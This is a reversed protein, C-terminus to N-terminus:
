SQEQSVVLREGVEVGEISARYRHIVFGAKIEAAVGL